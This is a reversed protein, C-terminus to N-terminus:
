VLIRNIKSALNLLITEIQKIQFITLNQDKEKEKYQHNAIQIRLLSKHTLFVKQNKFEESIQNRNVRSKATEVIQIM